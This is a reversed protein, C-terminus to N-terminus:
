MYSMKGLGLGCINEGLLKALLKMTKSEVNLGITWKLNIRAIQHLTLICKKKKEYSFGTSFAM